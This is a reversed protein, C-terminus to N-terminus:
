IVLPYRDSCIMVAGLVFSLPKIITQPDCGGPEPRPFICEIGVPCEDEAGIGNCGALSFFFLALVIYLDVTFFVVSQFGFM